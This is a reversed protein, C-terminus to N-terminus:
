HLTINVYIISRVPFLNTTSTKDNHSVEVDKITIM